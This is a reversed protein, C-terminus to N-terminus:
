WPISDLSWLPWFQMEQVAHAVMEKREKREKLNFFSLVLPHPLTTKINVAFLAFFEFFLPGFRAPRKASKANKSTSSIEM